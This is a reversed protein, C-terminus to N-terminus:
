LLRNQAPDGNPAGHERLRVTFTAGPPPAIHLEGGCQRVLSRVLRMGIGSAPAAEPLGAGQDSVKLVLEGPANRLQVQIVGKAPPPYAHKSANTVLENVVLGLSVAEDLPTMTPDADVEIRLRDSEVLSASLRDCLRRLYAAFDVEDKSSVRYLSAHVDSITEIRDVAKRLQEAVRPDDAVRAQMTLMASVAALNNKVRHNLEDFMENQRSETAKRETIDVVILALRNPNLRTIRIDLWRRAHRAYFELRAAGGRFAQAAAAVYEPPPAGRIESHLRGVIQMDIGLMILLAPNAEEVTFDVLKGDESWVGAVLAFGESVGDFLARYRAERDALRVIDRRRRRLLRRLQAGVAGVFAGAVVYIAINLVVTEMPALLGRANRLMLWSFAASLILAIAAALEGGILAAGLIAPYYLNFVTLGPLLRGFGIRLASALGVFAIACLPGVLRLAWAPLQAFRLFHRRPM